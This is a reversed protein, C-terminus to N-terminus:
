GRGAIDLLEVRVPLRSKIAAAFAPSEPAVTMAEACPGAAFRGYSRTMLSTVDVSLRVNITPNRQAFYSIAEGQRAGRLSLTTMALSAFCDKPLLTRDQLDM